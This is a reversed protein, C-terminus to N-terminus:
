ITHIIRAMTISQFVREQKLSHLLPCAHRHRALALSQRLTSPDICHHQRSATPDLWPHHMDLGASINFPLRSNVDLMPQVATRRSSYCSHCCYSRMMCGTHCPSVACATFLIELAGTIDLPLHIVISYDAGCNSIVPPAHNLLLRWVAKGFQWENGSAAANIPYVVDSSRCHIIGSNRRYDEM